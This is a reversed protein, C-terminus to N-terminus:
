LKAGRAAAGAEAGVAEEGGFIAALAERAIEMEEQARSRM